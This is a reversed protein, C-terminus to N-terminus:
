LKGLPIKQELVGPEVEVPHRPLIGLLSVPSVFLNRLDKPAPAILM